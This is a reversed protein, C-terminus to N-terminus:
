GKNVREIIKIINHPIAKFHPKLAKQVAEIIKNENQELSAIKEQQLAIIKDKSDLLARLDQLNLIDQEKVKNDHNLIMDGEGTLLWNANVDEFSQMILTLRDVDPKQKGKLYNSVTQHKLGTKKAFDAYRSLGYYEAIQRLRKNIEHM